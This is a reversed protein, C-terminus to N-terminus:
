RAGIVNLQCLKLCFNNAFSKFKLVKGFTKSINSTFRSNSLPGNMFLRNDLHQVTLTDLHKRTTGGLHPRTLETKNLIAGM